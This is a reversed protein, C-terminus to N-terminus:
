GMLGWGVTCFNPKNQKICKRTYICHILSVNGWLERMVCGAMKVLIVIEYVNATFFFFLYIAPHFGTLNSELDLFQSHLNISPM